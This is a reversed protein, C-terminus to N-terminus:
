EEKSFSALQVDPIAERYPRQSEYLALRQKLATASDAPARELAKRLTARALEFKGASAQAAALTDLYRPSEGDLEIAKRAARIALDAKRFRKDPCTAM